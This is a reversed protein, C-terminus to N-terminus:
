ASFERLFCLLWNERKQCLELIDCGLKLFNSVDNLITEVNSVYDSINLLVGNGKDPHIIVMDNNSLNRIAISEAKSSNSPFATQVLRNKLHDDLLM